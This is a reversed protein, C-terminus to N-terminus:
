VRERKEVNIQQIQQAVDEPHHGNECLPVYGETVSSQDDMIPIEPITM